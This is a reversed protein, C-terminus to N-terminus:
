SSGHGDGLGDGRGDRGVDHGGHRIGFCFGLTGDDTQVECGHRGLEHGVDGDALLAEVSAAADDTVDEDGSCNLSFIM